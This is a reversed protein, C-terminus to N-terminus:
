YSTRAKSTGKKCKKTMPFIIVIFVTHARPNKSAYELFKPNPCHKRCSPDQNSPQSHFTAHVCSVRLSFIILALNFPYQKILLIFSTNFFDVM